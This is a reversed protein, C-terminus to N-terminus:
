GPGNDKFLGATILLADITSRRCKLAKSIGQDDANVERLVRWQQRPLLLLVKTLLERATAQDM